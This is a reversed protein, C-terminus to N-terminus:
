DPLFAEECNKTFDSGWHRQLYAANTRRQREDAAAQQRDGEAILNQYWDFIDKGAAPSVNHKALVTAFSAFLPQDEATIPLTAPNFYERSAHSPQTQPQQRQEAGHPKLPQYVPAVDRQSTAPQTNVRIPAPEAVSTRAPATTTTPMPAGRDLVDSASTSGSYYWEGPAFNSGNNESM